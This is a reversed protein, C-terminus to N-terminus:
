AAFLVDGGVGCVAGRQASRSRRHGGFIRHELDGAVGGSFFGWVLALLFCLISTFSSLTRFSLQM